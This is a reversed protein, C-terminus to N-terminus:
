ANGPRRDEECVLRVAAHPALSDVSREVIVFADHGLAARAKELAASEADDSYDGAGTVTVQRPSWKYSNVWRDHRAQLAGVAFHESPTWSSSPKSIPPLGNTDSM